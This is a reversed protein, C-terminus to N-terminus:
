KEKKKQKKEDLKYPRLGDYFLKVRLNVYLICFVLSIIFVPLCALNIKWSEWDVKLRVRSTAIVYLVLCLVARGNGLYFYIKRFISASKWDIVSNDKYMNRCHLCHKYPDGFSQMGYGYGDEVTRGCHPCKKWYHSM